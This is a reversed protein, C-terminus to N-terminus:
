PKYGSRSLIDRADRIGVLEEPTIDNNEMFSRVIQWGIWIGTRSPSKRSFFSTFPGDQVFKQTKQLDSSFLLDNELIFAWLNPENDQCWELKEPSYGIKIHDPVDPLIIDMLYLIKGEAIIQDLLQNGRHEPLYNYTAWAKVCDPVIYEREMRSAKYLPIGANKYEEYNKGLYCDLGIVMLSDIYIIPQLVDIGSIYTYVEPVITNPFYYKIHKYADTLGREIENLDPYKELTAKYLQKLYPDIIYNRIRIVNLTDRYNEGLFFSYDEYLLDLGNGVNGPNVAFLDKGYRKIEISDIQVGSVDAKDRKNTCSIVAGLLLIIIWGKQLSNYVM